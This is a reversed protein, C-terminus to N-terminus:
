ARGKIQNLTKIEEKLQRNQDELNDIYKKFYTISTQLTTIYIRHLRILDEPKMGDTSPDHYELPDDPDSSSLKLMAGKDNLLWEYNIETYVNIISNALEPSIGYLGDRIAYLKQSVVGITKAFRNISTKKYLIVAMLRESDTM